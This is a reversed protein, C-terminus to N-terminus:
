RWRRRSRCALEMSCASGVVGHPASSLSDPSVVANMFKSELCYHNVALSVFMHRQWSFFSCSFGVGPASTLLTTMLSCLCPWVVSHMFLTVGASCDTSMFVLSSVAMKALLAAWHQALAFHVLTTAPTRKHHVSLDGESLPWTPAAATHLYPFTHIDCRLQRPLPLKSTM